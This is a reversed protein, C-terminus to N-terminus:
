ISDRYIKGELPALLSPLAQQDAVLQDNDLQPPRHATCDNALDILAARQHKAVAKMREFHNAMVPGFGYSYTLTRDFDHWLGLVVKAQAVFVANPHGSRAQRILHASPNQAEWFRRSIAHYQSVLQANAQEAAPVQALAKAVYAETDYSPLPSPVAAELKLPAAVPPSSVQASTTTSTPRHHPLKHWFGVGAVALVAVVSSFLVWPRGRAPADSYALGTSPAYAAATPLVPTPSGGVPAAPLPGQSQGRRRLERQAALVLEPQYYTPNAVFFRLEDDTKLHLVDLPTAM